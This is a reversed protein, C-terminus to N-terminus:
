PKSAVTFQRVWTGSTTESTEPLPTRYQDYLPQDLRPTAAPVIGGVGRLRNMANTGIPVALVPVGQSARPLEAL